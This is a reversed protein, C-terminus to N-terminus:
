ELLRSVNLFMFVETKNKKWTTKIIPEGRLNWTFKIHIKTNRCCMGPNSFM